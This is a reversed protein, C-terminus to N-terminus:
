DAAKPGGFGRGKRDLNSNLDIPDIAVKAGGSPVEVHASWLIANVVLRRFNDDGWNKHVHAGTFGFCADIRRVTPDHTATFRASGVESYRGLHTAEGSGVFDTTRGVFQATGGSKHPRDEASARTTVTLMGTAVLMAVLTRLSYFRNM